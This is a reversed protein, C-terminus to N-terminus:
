DNIVAKLDLTKFEAAYDFAEGMPNSRPSHQNLGELRLNNPWWDRNSVRAQIVPCVGANDEVKADMARLETSREDRGPGAALGPGRPLAWRPTTDLQNDAHGHDLADIARRAPHTLQGHEGGNAADRRPPRARLSERRDHHDPRQHQRGCRRRTWRARGGFP